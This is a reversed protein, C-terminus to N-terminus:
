RGPLIPCAKEQEALFGCVPSADDVHRVGCPECATLLMVLVHTARPRACAKAWAEGSVGGALKRSMSGSCDLGPGQAEFLPLTREACGAVRLALIRRDDESLTLAGRQEIDAQGDRYGIPLRCLHCSGQCHFGPATQARLRDLPAM